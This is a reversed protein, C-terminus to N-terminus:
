AYQGELTQGVQGATPVPSTKEIFAVAKLVQEEKQGVTPVTDAFKVLDAQRLLAVLTRDLDNKVHVAIEETTLDIARFGRIAGLYQRLIESFRFYFGKVQGTEFLNERDLRELEKRARIHPPDLIEAQIEDIRKKERWWLFGLVVVVLGVFVASFPLYTLWKSRTPIIDQIPRLQAKEPKEGLNTLVSVSVAPASLHHTTGERDMYALTLDQTKWTELQDVLVTMVIKEATAHRDLIIIGELGGIELPETLQGEEPLRYKLTLRATEGLKVPNPDMTGAVAPVRLGDTEEAWLTTPWALVLFFGAWAMHRYLSGRM